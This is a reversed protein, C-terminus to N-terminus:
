RPRPRVAPGSGESTSPASASPSFAPAPPEWHFGYGIDILLDAVTVAFTVLLTVGSIVPADGVAISQYV